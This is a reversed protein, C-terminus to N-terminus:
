QYVDIVSGVSDPILTLSEGNVNALILGDNVVRPTIEGAGQIINDVNHLLPGGIVCNANVMTLTGGGTLTM